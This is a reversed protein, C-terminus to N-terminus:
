LEEVPVVPVMPVEGFVTPWSAEVFAAAVVTTDELAESDAVLSCLLQISM